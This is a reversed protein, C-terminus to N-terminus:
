DDIVNGSHQSFCLRSGKKFRRLGKTEHKLWLTEDIFGCEVKNEDYFWIPTEKQFSIKKDNILFTENNVLTGYDIFGKESFSVTDSFYVDKGQALLSIPSKLLTSELKGNNFLEIRNPDEKNPPISIWRDTLKFEGWGWFELINGYEDFFIPNFSQLTIKYYTSQASTTSYITAYRVQKNEFFEIYKYGLLLELNGHTYLYPDLFWISKISGDEFFEISEDNVRLEQNNIKYISNKIPTIKQVSGTEYYQPPHNIDYLVGQVSFTKLDSLKLLAIFEERTYNDIIPSTLHSNFYRVKRSDLTKDETFIIEHLILGAKNDNDLLNWLDKNIIFLHDEPFLKEQQVAIQELKCGKPIFVHNSDDIDQLNINELFLVEDFFTDTIKSYREFREPSIDKIRKLAFNVKEIVSLTNDGLFYFIKRFERAEYFDLLETTTIKGNEDKCVIVDGGNGIEDGRLQEFSFKNESHLCLGILLTLM